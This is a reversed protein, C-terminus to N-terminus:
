NKVVEAIHKFENPEKQEAKMVSMKLKWENRIDVNIDNEEDEEASKDDDYGDDEYESQDDRKDYEEEQSEYLDLDNHEYEIIENDVNNM